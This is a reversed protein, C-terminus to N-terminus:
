SILEDPLRDPTYNRPTNNSLLRMFPWVFFAGTGMLILAHGDGTIIALVLPTVVFFLAAIVVVIMAGKYRTGSMGATFRITNRGAAALRGHLDQVFSRYIQTQEKNPLGGSTANSITITDGSNFEIKCQDIVDQGVNASSLHIAAIDAFAITRPKSDVSFSMDGDGVTVGHNTIWMVFRPGSSVTFYLDYLQSHQAQLNLQIM